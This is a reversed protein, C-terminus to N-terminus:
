TWDLFRLDLAGTLDRLVVARATMEVNSGAAGFRVTVIAGPRLGLPLPLPLAVMVGASSLGSAIVVVDGLVESGLIVPFVSRSAALM